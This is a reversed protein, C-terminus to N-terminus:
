LPALVELSQELELQWLGTPLSPVAYELQYTSLNVLWIYELGVNVSDAQEVFGRM